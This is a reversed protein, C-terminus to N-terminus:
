RKGLMVEKTKNALRGVIEAGALIAVFAAIMTSFGKIFGVIFEKVIRM